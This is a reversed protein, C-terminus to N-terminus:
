RQNNRMAGRGNMFWEMLKQMYYVSAMPDIPQGGGQPPAQGGASSPPPGGTPAPSGIASQPLNQQPQVTARTPATNPSYSTAGAAYPINGAGMGPKGARPAGPIHPQMRGLADDWNGM